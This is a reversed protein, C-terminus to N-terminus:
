RHGCVSPKPCGYDTSPSCHSWPTIEHAPSGPPSWCPASNTATWAWPMPSTTSDLDVVHAVPSITCLRRALTARARGRALFGMLAVREGDEFVPDAVPALATSITTDM